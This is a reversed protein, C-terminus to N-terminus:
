GDARDRTMWMSFGAAAVWLVWGFIFVRFGHLDVSVIGGIWLAVAAVGLLLGAYGLWPPLARTQLIAVSFFLTAVCASAMFIYDFAHNLAFGFRTVIELSALASESAGEYMSAYIPYALGNIAGAIMVAVLGTLMISFALKSLFGSERLRLHLGYFGLGLFPISALALAHSGVVLHWIELIYVLSGGTPHMVMTIFMLFCGILLAIGETRTSQKEM